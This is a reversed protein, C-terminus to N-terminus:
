FSPSRPEPKILHTIDAPNQAHHPHESGSFVKLRKVRITKGLKGKPLMGHVASEIIRTPFREKVDRFYNISYSGIRGAGSRANQTHRFYYKMWYKKGTVKVKSANVVIVNDGMDMAPHYKPNMKGRIISAALTALRGLIQGEADILYWPKCSHAEDGLKPYFTNNWPDCSRRKKTISKVCNKQYKRLAVVNSPYLSSNSCKLTSIIM